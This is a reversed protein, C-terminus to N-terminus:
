DNFRGGHAWLGIAPNSIYYFREGQADTNWGDKLSEIPYRQLM